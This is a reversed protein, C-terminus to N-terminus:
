SLHKNNYCASLANRGDIDLHSYKKVVCDHKQRSVSLFNSLHSLVVNFFITFNMNHHRFVIIRRFIRKSLFLKARSSSTYNISTMLTSLPFIFCARAISNSKAFIRAMNYYGNCNLLFCLHIRKERFLNLVLQGFNSYIDSASVSLSDLTVFEDM